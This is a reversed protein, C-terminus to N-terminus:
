RQHHPPVMIGYWVSNSAVELTYNGALSATKTSNAKARPLHSMPVTSSIGACSRACGKESSSSGHHCYFWSRVCQSYTQPTEPNETTRWSPSWKSCSSRGRCQSTESASCELLRSKGTFWSGRTVLARPIAYGRHGEQCVSTHLLSVAQSTRKWMSNESPEEPLAPAYTQSGWWSHHSHDLGQVHPWRYRLSALGRHLRPLHSKESGPTWCIWQCVSPELSRMKRFTGLSNWLRTEPCIWSNYDGGFIRKPCISTEWAIQCDTGWKKSEIEAITLLPWLWMLDMCTQSAASSDTAQPTPCRGCHDSRLWELHLLAPCFTWWLM